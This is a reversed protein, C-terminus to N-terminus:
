HVSRMRLLEVISLYSMTTKTDHRRHDFVRELTAGLRLGAAVLRERVIPLRSEYYAETLTSGDHVEASSADLYAFKLATQFSEAGWLETCTQNRGFSCDLYDQKTSNKLHQILDKEMEARSGDYDRTLAVEIIGTDWVSHLNWAHHHHNSRM